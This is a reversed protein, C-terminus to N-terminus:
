PLSLTPAIRSRGRHGSCSSCPVSRIRLSQQQHSSRCDTPLPSPPSPWVRRGYCNLRRRTTTGVSRSCRAIVRELATGTHPAPISASLPMAVSSAEGAGDSTSSTPKAPASSGDSLAPVAIRALSLVMGPPSANSGSAEAFRSMSAASCWDPRENTRERISVTSAGTIRALSFRSRQFVCPAPPTSM